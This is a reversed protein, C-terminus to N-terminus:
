AARCQAAFMSRSAAPQVAARGLYEGLVRRNGAGDPILVDQGDLVAPSGGLNCRLRTSARADLYGYELLQVLSLDTAFAGKLSTAVNRLRLLGGLSALESRIAQIVLQQRRGRTIDSDSANLINKRIRAYALADEGDLRLRGKQFTYQKAGFVSRINEPNDITIGGLADVIQVLGSFDVIMVHDIPLGTYETVTRIALASGGAAYAANIKQDGYGSVPVRLDRPISLTALLQRDPDFRMVQITDSNANEDVGLIMITSPDTLVGSSPSLAARARPDLRDNAQSVSSRVALLGLALWGAVLLLVIVVALVIWFRASRPERRTPRWGPADDKRWWRFRPPEIPPPAGPPPLEIAGRREPPAEPV